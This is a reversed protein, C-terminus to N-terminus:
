EHKLAILNKQSRLGSAQYKLGPVQNKHVLHTDGIRDQFAGRVLKLTV